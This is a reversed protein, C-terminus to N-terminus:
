KSGKAARRACLPKLNQFRQHQQRLHISECMVFATLAHEYAMHAAADAEPTGITKALRILETEARRLQERAKLTHRVIQRDTAANM